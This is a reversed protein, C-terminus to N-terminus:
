HWVSGLPPSATLPTRSAMMYACRQEKIQPVEWATQFVFTTGTSVLVEVVSANAPASADSADSCTSWYVARQGCGDIVFRENVQTPRRSSRYGAPMNGLVHPELPLRVPLARVIHTEHAPCSLDRAAIEVSVDGELRVSAVDTPDACSSSLFGAAACARFLRRRRLGEDYRRQEQATLRVQGRAIAQETLEPLGAVNTGRRTRTCEFLQRLECGSVECVHHSGDPARLDPRETVDVPADVCAMDAGAKWRVYGKDIGCGAALSLVLMAASALTGTPPTRSRM